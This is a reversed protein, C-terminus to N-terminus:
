DIIDKVDIDKADISHWDMGIRNQLYWDKLEEQIEDADTKDVLIQFTILTKISDNSQLSDEIEDTISVIEQQINDLRIINNEDGIGLEVDTTVKALQEALEKLEKIKEQM